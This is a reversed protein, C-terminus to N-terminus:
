QVALITGLISLEVIQQLTGLLQGNYGRIHHAGVLAILLGAGLGVGLAHGAYDDLVAMTIAIGLGLALVVRIGPPQQFYDAVPDGAIPRMWAAALVMLARSWCCAAILSQFVIDNSSLNAIAGIKMIIILIVGLTGYRVSREESLWGVKADRDFSQSYKNLLSAFEEEHLARTLWLIGIVAFTATVLAPMGFQSMFWDISAGFFGILAGVLPFWVMSRRIMKPKPQEHLKFNFRTLYNLAIVMEAWLTEPSPPKIIVPPQKSLGAPQNETNENM